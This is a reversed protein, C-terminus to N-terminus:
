QWASSCSMVVSITANSMQLNCITRNGSGFTVRAAESHGCVEKDKGEQYRQHGVVLAVDGDYARSNRFLKRVAFATRKSEAGRQWQLTKGPRARSSHLLGLKSPRLLRLTRLVSSHHSFLSLCFLHRSATLEYRAAITTCHCNDYGLGAGDCPYLRTLRVGM